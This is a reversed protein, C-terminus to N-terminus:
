RSARLRREIDTVYMQVFRAVEAPMAYFAFGIRRSSADRGPQIRTLILDCPIPAIAESEIRCHRFGDGTAPAELDTPWHLSVGGISIDEMPVAREGRGEPLRIVVRARDIRPPAVRFAHRRQIRWGRAPLACVVIDASSGDTHRGGVVVPSSVDFQIRVSGPLGVVAITRASRIASTRDPPGSLDFAIVDEELQVIRTVLPAGTDGDAFLGVPTDHNFIERALARVAKRGEVRYDDTPRIPSLAHNGPAAM